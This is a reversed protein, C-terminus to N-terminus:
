GLDTEFLIVFIQMQFYCKESNKLMEWPGILLLWGACSLTNLESLMKLVRRLDM